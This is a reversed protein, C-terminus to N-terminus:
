ANVFVLVAGRQLFLVCLKLSSASSFCHRTLRQAFPADPLFGECPAKLSPIWSLHRCEVTFIESSVVANLSILRSTTKSDM